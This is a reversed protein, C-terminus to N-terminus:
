FFIEPQAAKIAWNISHQSLLDSIEYDIARRSAM